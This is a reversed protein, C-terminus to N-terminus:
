CCSRALPTYRTLKWIERKEIGTCKSLMRVVKYRGSIPYGYSEKAEEFVFRLGDVAENLKKCFTNIIERIVKAAEKVIEQAKSIAKRFDETSKLIHKFEVVMMGCSEIQTKEIETFAYVM